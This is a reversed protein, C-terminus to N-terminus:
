AAAFVRSRGAQYDPTGAPVRGAERLRRYEDEERQLVTAVSPRAECRAAHEICRSFPTGDMGSGTARFWLWLLHVDALSWEGFLWQRGELRAEIIAFSEELQVGALARISEHADIRDTFFRPFRLRTVYPHVGAAFWSITELAEIEIVPDGSPLLGAEPHRRALFTQIAPNETITRSGLVLAPVKGKPNIALYDPAPGGLKDVLIAEYPDGIEELAVYPIRACTGPYWYLRYEAM